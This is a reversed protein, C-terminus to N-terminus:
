APSSVSSRGLTIGKMIRGMDSMRRRIKAANLNPSRKGQWIFVPFSSILSRVLFNLAKLQQKIKKTIQRIDLLILVFMVVGVTLALVFAILCIQLVLHLIEM